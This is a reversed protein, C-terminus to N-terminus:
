YFPGWLHSLTHTSSWYWVSLNWSLMAWFIIINCWIRFFIAASIFIKIRLHSGMDMVTVDYHAHHHRLVGAEGNNVSGNIRTCILSFMLARRWQGEGTVSVKTNFRHRILTLRFTSAIQTASIRNKFFQGGNQLHNEMFYCNIEIWVNNFIKGQPITSLVNPNTWNVWRGSSGFIDM